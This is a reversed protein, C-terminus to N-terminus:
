IQGNRILNVLSFMVLGASRIVLNFLRVIM